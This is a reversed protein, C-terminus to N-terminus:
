SRIRGHYRRVLQTEMATDLERHWCGKVEVIVTFQVEDAKEKSLAVIHLDTEEGPRVEVERNIVIGRNRLRESLHGLLFRSLTNEDAPKWRLM